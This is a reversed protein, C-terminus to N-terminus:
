PALDAVDPWDPLPHRARDIARMVSQKSIGLLRAVTARTLGLRCVALHCVVARAALVRRHLSRSAMQGTPIEFRTAVAECLRQVVDAAGRSCKAPSGDQALFAAVFESSGLIREDYAWQERGRRLTPVYQWGGASRRLGGGSLDDRTPHVGAAHVFERYAVRAPGSRIGFHALVFDINQAALTARGLLAAHGTWPYTDLQELSVGLRARVPNLHIYRVLELLYRDEEVVISKFRNQFLHGARRHRRNFASAYAGLWRQMLGGVPTAGTRLLLHIHNPMLCWAYLVAGGDRLVRDLRQLCWRRDDDTRFIRRREIGRAMIHHVTGPSDLRPGRPM